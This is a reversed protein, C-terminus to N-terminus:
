RSENNMRQLRKKALEAINTAPYDTVLSDLTQRAERWEEMEYYTYGIKLRADAVKASNPYTDVVKAFEILAEDYNKQAFFSEALWYQANGSYRSKPFKKLFLSFAKSSDSYQTERLLSLAVRYDAVVSDTDTSYKDTETAPQKVIPLDEKQKEDQVKKQPVLTDPPLASEEDSIDDSSEITASSEEREEQKKQLTEIIEDENDSTQNSLQSKIDKELDRVRNDLDTYLRSQKEQLENLIKLTHENENRLEAMTKQLLELREYMQVLVTSDLKKELNSIRLELSKIKSESHAAFPLAFLFCGIIGATFFTKIKPIL